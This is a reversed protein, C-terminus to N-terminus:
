AKYHVHFNVELGGRSPLIVELNRFLLLTIELCQLLTLRTSRLLTVKYDNFTSSLKICLVKSRMTNRM